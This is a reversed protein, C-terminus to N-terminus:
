AYRCERHFVSHLIELPRGDIQRCWCESNGRSLLTPPFCQRLGSKVGSKRIGFDCTLPKASSTIPAVVIQSYNPAVKTLLRTWLSSGTITETVQRVLDSHHIASNEVFKHRIRVCLVGYACSPLFVAQKRVCAQASACTIADLTPSRRGPVESIRATFISVNQVTM